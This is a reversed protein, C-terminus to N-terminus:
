FLSTSLLAMDKKELKIECKKDGINSDKVAVYTIFVLAVAAGLVASMTVFDVLYKGFEKFM